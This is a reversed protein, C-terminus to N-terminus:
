IRQDLLDLPADQLKRKLSELGLRTQLDLTCWTQLPRPELDQVQLKLKLDVFQLDTAAGPPDPWTWSALADKNGPGTRM